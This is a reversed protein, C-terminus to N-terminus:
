MIRGGGKGLEQGMDHPEQAQVVSLFGGQGAFSPVLRGEVGAKVLVGDDGQRRGAIGGAGCLDLLQTLPLAGHQHQTVDVAGGVAM